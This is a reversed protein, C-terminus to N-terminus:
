CCSLHQLRVFYSVFYQNILKSVGYEDYYTTDPCKPCCEGEAAVADPCNVEECSEYYCELEGNLCTCIKCPDTSPEPRLSDQHAYFQGDYTCPKDDQGAVVTVLGILALLIEGRM